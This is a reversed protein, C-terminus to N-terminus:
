YDGTTEKDQYRKDVYVVKIGKKTLITHLELNNVRWTAGHVNLYEIASLPYDRYNESYPSYYKEVVITPNGYKEKLKSVIYDYNDFIRIDADILLAIAWVINDSNFKILMQNIDTSLSNKYEYVLICNNDGIQYQYKKENLIKIVENKTSGLTIGSITIDQANAIASIFAIAM